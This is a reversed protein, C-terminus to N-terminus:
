APREPLRILWSGDRFIQPEGLLDDVAAKVGPWGGCYDHGCIWGGPRVRERWAAIDARVAVESHDADIYVVDVGSFKSSAAPSTARHIHVNPFRSFKSRLATVHDASQEILHVHAIQPFGALLTASEGIYAGVEVWSGLAPSQSLIANVMQLYGAVQRPEDPQWHPFFRVSRM